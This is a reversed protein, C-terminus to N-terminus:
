ALGPGRGSAEPAAQNRRRDDHGHPPAAHDTGGVVANLTGLFVLATEIMWTPQGYTAAWALTLFSGTSMMLGIVPFIKYRGFASILRGGTVSAVIVGGMM